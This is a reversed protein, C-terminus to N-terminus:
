LSGAFMARCIAVLTLCCAIIQIIRDVLVMRALKRKAYPITEDPDKMLYRRITIYANELYKGTLKRPMYWGFTSRDKEDLLDILNDTQKTVFEWEHRVFYRLSVESSYIRCQLKMLFPKHGLMRILLDLLFSPLLMTLILNFYYLAKWDTPYGRPVWIMRSFPVAYLYEKGRDLMEQYELSQEYSVASNYIPLHNPGYTREITGRKWAALIITKVVVDVPIINIRNRPQLYATRTIGMGASVLMGTPGNFNDVWGSMPEQITFLVVSPRVIALPLENSYDNCVQEALGKTYTYTNPSDHSLKQMLADLTEPEYRDVAQVLKKWDYKPPYLKEEVYRNEPNSYATSVHVVARLNTATSKLIEFLEQTSCINTKIADKLPDDFRVSAALHFAVSVNNLRQIDEEYMGLRLQTIDGFIPVVKNLAGKNEERLRDFLPCSVLETVRTEISKGRKNRMLVFIRGIDPCSRLLKEILVKGLFGTGGTLFVDTNAYFDTVSEYCGSQAAM